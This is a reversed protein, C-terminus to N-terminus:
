SRRWSAVSRARMRFTAGMVGVMSMCPAVWWDGPRPGGKQTFTLVAWAAGLLYGVCLGSLPAWRRDGFRPPASPSLVLCSVVSLVGFLTSWGVLEQLGGGHGASYRGGAWIQTVFSAPVYLLVWALALRSAAGIRFHWDAGAAVPLNAGLVLAMSLASRGLSWWSWISNVAVFTLVVLSPSGFFASLLAEVASDPTPPIM